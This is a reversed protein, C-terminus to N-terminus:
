GGATTTTTGDGGTTSPPSTTSSTSSGGEGCADVRDRLEAPLSDWAQPDDKLDSNLDTFNPGTYGEPAADSNIPIGNPGAFVRYMCECTSQDPATVDPEVTNDTRSLSDDTNDFYYNTCGELFNQETLTDYAEPTNDTACAGLALGLVAAVGIAGATVRRRLMRTLRGEDHTSPAPVPASGGSM